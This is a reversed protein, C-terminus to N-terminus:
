APRHEATEIVAEAFGEPTEAGGMVEDLLGLHEEISEQVQKRDVAYDPDRSHNERWIAAVCWAAEYCACLEVDSLAGVDIGGLLANVCPAFMRVQTRDLVGTHGSLKRMFWGDFRPEQNIGMSDFVTVWEGWKMKNLLPEPYEGLRYCYWLHERYPGRDQYLLTEPIYLKANRWLLPLEAKHPFDESDAVARLARGLEWYARLSGKGKESPMIGRQTLQEVLRHIRADMRRDLRDAQEVDAESFGAGGVVQYRKQPSKAVLVAM